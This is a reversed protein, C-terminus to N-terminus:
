IMISTVNIWSVVVWYLILRQHIFISVDSIWIAKSLLQESKFVTIPYWHLIKLSKRWSYDCLKGSNRAPSGTFAKGNMNIWGYKQRYGTVALPKTPHGKMSDPLWFFMFLHQLDYIDIGGIRDSIVHRGSPVMTTSFMENPRRLAKSSQTGMTKM